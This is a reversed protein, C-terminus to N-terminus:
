FTPCKDAGEEDNDDPELPASRILARLGEATSRQWADGNELSGIIEILVYQPVQYIARTRERFIVPRRFCQQCVMPLKNCEECTKM